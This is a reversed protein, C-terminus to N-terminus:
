LGGIIFLAMLAMAITFGAAAGFFKMCNISFREVEEDLDIRNMELSNFNNYIEKSDVNM